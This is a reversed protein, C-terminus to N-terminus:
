KGSFSCYISCSNFLFFPGSMSLTRSQSDLVLIQITTKTLFINVFQFLFYSFISLNFGKKIACLFFNPLFLKRFVHTPGVVFTSLARLFEMLFFLEEKM